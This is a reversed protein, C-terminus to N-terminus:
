SKQSVVKVIDSVDFDDEDAVQDDHLMEMEEESIIDPEEEVVPPAVYVPEDPVLDSKKSEVPEGTDAVM